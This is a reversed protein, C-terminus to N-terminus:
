IHLRQFQLIFCHKLDHFKYPHTLATSPSFFFKNNTSFFTSCINLSCAQIGPDLPFTVSQFSEFALCCLLASPLFQSLWLFPFTLVFFTSYCISIASLCFYGQQHLMLNPAQGQILSGLDLPTSITPLLSNTVFICQCFVSMIKQAYGCLM